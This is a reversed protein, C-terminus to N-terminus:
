LPPPLDRRSFVLAAAVYCALGIALLVLDYGAPGLATFRGAPDSLYVQWGAGENAALSIFRQPEYATLLTLNKLWRWNPVAMGMVKCMTQLIYFGIVLGITRWRYRDWSSALTSIGALCVGLSFLSASGPLFHEPSVKDRLPRRVVEPKAFPDNVPGLIPVTFLRRPAEERVEFSYIGGLLGLWVALSLGALGSITVVAQNLLVQLRTVPQALLMEMTGRGLEGSICDSGRAIAFISVTLVVIPEDFTVAIRGTYSLLQTLSVPSFDKWKDWLQEVITAFSSMELRSVIYCRVWAFAVLGVFSAAFLLRAEELNKKLLIRNM